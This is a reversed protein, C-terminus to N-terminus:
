QVKIEVRAHRLDSRYLYMTARSVMSLPTRSVTLLTEAGRFSPGCSIFQDIYKGDAGFRHQVYVVLDKGSPPESLHKSMSCPVRVPHEVISVHAPQVTM